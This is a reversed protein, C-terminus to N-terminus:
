EGGGVRGREEGERGGERERNMENIKLEAVFNTCNCCFYSIFLLLWLLLSGVSNKLPTSIISIVLSLSSSIFTSFDREKRVRVGV